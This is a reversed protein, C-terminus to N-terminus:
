PYGSVVAEFLRHYQPLVVQPAFTEDYRLKSNRKMEMLTGPDGLMHELRGTLAECDGAPVVHGNFGSTVLSNMPPADTTILACGHAMAEILVYGFTEARTPLAMLDARAMLAALASDSVDRRWRIRADNRIEAQIDPPVASVIDLVCNDYRKSIRKFAAVVEHLGKRKADRGAFLMHVDYERPLTEDPMITDLVPPIVVIPASLHAHRRLEEAGSETWILLVKAKESVREYHAIVDEYSVPGTAAYYDPPSLGQSSWVVPTRPDVMAPYNIHSLVADYDGDRGTLSVPAHRALWFLERRLRTSGVRSALRLFVKQVERLLQLRSDVLSYEISSDTGATLL